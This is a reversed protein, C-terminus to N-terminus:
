IRRMFAVASLAITILAVTSMLRTEYSDTFLPLIGKFRNHLCERIKSENTPSPM